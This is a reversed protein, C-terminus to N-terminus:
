NAARPQDSSFMDRTMWWSGDPQRRYIRLFNGRTNRTPGGGSKPSATVTFTGRQYALNGDVVTELPMWREDYKFQQFARGNAADNAAKGMVPPRDPPIMIHDEDTLASLAAIDGGNIAKVYQSNFATISALDAAYSTAPARTTTCAALAVAVCAAARLALAKVAIEDRSM